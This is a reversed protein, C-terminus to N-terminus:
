TVVEKCVAKIRSNLKWEYNETTTEVGTHDAIQQEVSFELHHLSPLCLAHLQTIRIYM